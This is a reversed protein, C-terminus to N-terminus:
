RNNENYKKDIIKKAKKFSMGTWFALNLAADIKKCIIADKGWDLYSDPVFIGKDALEQQKEKTM